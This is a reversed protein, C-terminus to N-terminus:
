KLMDRVADLSGANPAPPVGLLHAMLEYLHISETPGVKAGRRFAPGRAILIGHMSRLANDYGHNGLGPRWDAPRTRARRDLSWGEDALVVVPPIRPHDRYRLREPVEDRRWVSMRPHKGRLTDVVRQHDGDNAALGVLPNSDVLTVTSLDLYDDLYIQRDPSTEAMGHDSVVLMNVRDLLGRRELGSVLRGVGRDVRV